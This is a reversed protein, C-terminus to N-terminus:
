AVVPFIMASTLNAKQTEINVARWSPRRQFRLRFVSNGFKGAAIGVAVALDRMWSTVM